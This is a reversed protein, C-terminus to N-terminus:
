LKLLTMRRMTKSFFAPRWINNWLYSVDLNKVQYAGRIHLLAIFTDLKTVDLEKKTGLIRFPEVETCKIIHDRIFYLKILFYQDITLYYATKALGKM